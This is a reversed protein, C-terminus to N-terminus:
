GRVSDRSVSLGTGSGLWAAVMSGTTRALAVTDEATVVTWPAWWGLAVFEDYVHACRAQLAADAEYGDPTRTPDAAARERVRRAAVAGPVRVLVHHDPAPVAFRDIETARVWAAFPGEAGECARAAGYAANSAVYRDVVVLDHVAVAARLDGAADRRDLAFLVAMAHASARLDGHGGHLAEGALAAHVDQAYRPFAWTSVSADREAAARSLAGVLTAKGAGDLGEVAVM